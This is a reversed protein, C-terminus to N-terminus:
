KKGTSLRRLKRQLVTRTTPTVPGPTFGLEQLNERLQSDSLQDMEREDALSAMLLSLILWGAHCRYPTKATVLICVVIFLCFTLLAIIQLHFQAHANPVANAHSKGTVALLLCRHIHNDVTPPRLPKMGHM